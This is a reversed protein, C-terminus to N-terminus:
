AMSQRIAARTTVLGTANKTAPTTSKVAKV